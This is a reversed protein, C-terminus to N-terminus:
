GAHGVFVECNQEGMDVHFWGLAQTITKEHVCEQVGLAHVACVETEM